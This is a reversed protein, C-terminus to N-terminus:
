RLRTSCNRRRRGWAQRLFAAWRPRMGGGAPRHRNYYVAYRGFIAHLHRLGTTLMRDTVESRVTRVWREAYANSWM